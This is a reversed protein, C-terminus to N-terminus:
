RRDALAGPQEGTVGPKKAEEVVWQTKDLLLLLRALRVLLMPGTGEEFFPILLDAVVKPKAADPTAWGERLAQRVLEPFQQCGQRASDVVENRV